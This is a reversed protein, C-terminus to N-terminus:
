YAEEMQSLRHGNHEHFMCKICVSINCPLCFYEFFKDPHKSCKINDDIGLLNPRVNKTSENKFPSLKNKLPQSQKITSAESDYNRTQVGELSSNLFPLRSEINRTLSQQEDDSDQTQHDIVLPPFGKNLSSKLRHNKHQKKLQAQKIQM